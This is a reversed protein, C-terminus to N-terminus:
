QNEAQEEFCNVRYAQCFNSKSKHMFNSTVGQIDILNIGFKISTNAKLGEILTGFELCISARMRSNYRNVCLTRYSSYSSFFFLSIKNFKASELRSFPTSALEVTFKTGNSYPM